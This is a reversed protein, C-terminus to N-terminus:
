KPTSSDDVFWAFYSVMQLPASTRVLPKGLRVGNFQRSLPIKFSQILGYSSLVLLLALM